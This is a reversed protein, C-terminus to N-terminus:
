MKFLLRTPPSILYTIIITAHKIVVRVKLTDSLSGNVIGASFQNLSSKCSEIQESISDVTSTIQNKIELLNQWTIVLDNLKHFSSDLNNNFAELEDKLKHVLCSISNRESVLSAESEVDVM